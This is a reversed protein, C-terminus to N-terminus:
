SGRVSTWARERFATLLKRTRPGPKGTGIDRDDVQVVPILERLTSTLFVEKAARLDRAPLSEESATLGLDKALALVIRRTVGQLIGELPPTV